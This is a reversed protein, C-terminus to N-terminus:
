SSTQKTASTFNVSETSSRPQINNVNYLVITTNVNYLIKSYRSLVIAPQINLILIM